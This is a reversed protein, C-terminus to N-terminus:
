TLPLKQIVFWAFGGLTLVSAAIVYGGYAAAVEARTPEVQTFIFRDFGGPATCRYGLTSQVPGLPGNIWAKSPECTTSGVNLFLIIGIAALALPGWPINPSNQHQAM